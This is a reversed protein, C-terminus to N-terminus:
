NIQILLNIEGVSRRPTRRWAFYANLVQLSEASPVSGTHTTQAFYMVVPNVGSFAPWKPIGEGNPHGCKTFNTWYTAMADAQANAQEETLTTGFCDWSNWGMPPTPAFIWHSPEANTCSLMTVTVTAILMLRRKM